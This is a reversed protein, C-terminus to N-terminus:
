ICIATMLASPPGGAPLRNILPRDRRWRDGGPGISGWHGDVIARIAWDFVFM